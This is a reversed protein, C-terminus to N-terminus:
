EMLWERLEAGSFGIPGRLEGSPTTVYCDPVTNGYADYQNEEWEDVCEKLEEDSKTLLEDKDLVDLMNGYIFDMAASKTINTESLLDGGKYDSCSFVSYRARFEVKEEM